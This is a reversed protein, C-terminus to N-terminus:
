TSPRRLGRATGIADRAIRPAAVRLAIPYVILGTVVEAALLVAQRAPLGERVTVVALLMAGTALVLRPYPAYYDRLRLGTWSRFQYVRIPWYVLTVVGLSIAVATIGFHVSAAFAAVQATVIMTIWRLENSVRGAAIAYNNNFATQSQVVGALSLAELVPVSPTWRAGFLVVILPQAVVALGAFAPLCLAATTTSARCYAMNLTEYDHQFRSFTTLAVRNITTVLLETIVVLIRYAIVYYGLEVAGLVAGILFNDANGNFFWLVRIGIYRSGFSFLEKFGDRSVHRTPRWPALRWLVAVTVAELALQQGVLSWVGAGGLALAVAVLASAVAAIIRRLAQARFEMRRELLASQTSDFAAFIFILSLARTVGTLRPQSFIGAVLPALAVTITTCAFGMGLATWFATDAYGMPLTPRQVLLRGFGADVIVRLFLVVVMAAAMLGFAAPGLLRGLVVFVGLSILNYSWTQLATWAAGRAARALVEDVSAPADAFGAPESM